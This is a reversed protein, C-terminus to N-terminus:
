IIRSLVTDLVSNRLAHHATEVQVPTHALCRHALTPCFDISIVASKRDERSGREGTDLPVVPPVPESFVSQVLRKDRPYSAHYQLACCVIGMGRATPPPV